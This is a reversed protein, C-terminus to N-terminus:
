TARRSEAGAAVGDGAETPSRTLAGEWCGSGLRAVADRLGSGPGALGACKRSIASTSTLVHLGEGASRTRASSSATPMARPM